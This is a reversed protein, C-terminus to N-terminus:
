RLCLRSLICMLSSEEQSFFAGLVDRRGNVCSESLQENMLDDLMEQTGIICWVGSKVLVELLLLKLYLELVSSPM